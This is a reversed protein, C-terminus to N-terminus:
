NASGNGGPSLDLTKNKFQVTVRIKSVSVVRTDGDLAGVLPVLRQTGQADVFVAAPKEGVIVGSLAYGFASKPPMNPQVSLDGPHAPAFNGTLPPLEQLQNPVNRYRRPPDTPARNPQVPDPVKLGEIPNLSGPKFPDRSPLDVAYLPNQAEVKDDAKTDDKKAVKKPAPEPAGSNVLQFAGVAVIVAFLAGVVAMKKKDDM